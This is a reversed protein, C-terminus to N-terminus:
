FLPVSFYINGGINPKNYWGADDYGLDVKLSGKYGLIMMPFQAKLGFSKQKKASPFIKDYNGFSNSLSGKLIIDVENLKFYLSSYFAEVRNNDFYLDTKNTLDTETSFTIFPTGISTQRNSWGERYAGNNFYNDQGRNKGLLEGSGLAGGQSSSNFYEIVFRQIFNSNKLKISLGHLGDSINSLYYLSGDEYISQRYALIYIDENEFEAGLDITGLHNGARNYADNKGNKTTDGQYGLSVGTVVYLYNNFDSPIKGNIGYINNPDDFLIDGGWQVQHNFGAILRIPSNNSFLKGYFQKQHLYFNNIDSRKNSFFGHGYSMNVAFIGGFVKPYYFGTTGLEVKTIPLANQSWIYSGSSILSDALGFQQKKRGAFIEWNRWKAQGYAEQILLNAQETGIILRTNLGYSFDITKDGLYDGYINLGTSLYTGGVPVYGYNNARVWFPTYDSSSFGIGAGFDGKLDREQSFIEFSALYYIFILLILKRM